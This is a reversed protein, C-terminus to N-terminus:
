TDSVRIEEKFFALLGCGFHRRLQTCQFQESCDSVSCGIDFTLVLLSRRHRTDQAVSKETRQNQQAQLQLEAVCICTHLFVYSWASGSGVFKSLTVFGSVPFCM